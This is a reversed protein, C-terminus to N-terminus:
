EEWDEDTDIEWSRMDYEPDDVMEEYLVDALQQVFPHSPGYETIEPVLWKCFKLMQAKYIEQLKEDKEDDPTMWFELNSYGLAIRAEDKIQKWLESKIAESNTSAASIMIKM